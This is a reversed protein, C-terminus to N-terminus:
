LPLNLPIIADMNVSKNKAVSDEKQLILSFTNDEEENSTSGASQSSSLDNIQNVNDSAEECNEKDTVVDVDVAINVATQVSTQVIPDVAMKNDPGRNDGIDEQKNSDRNLQVLVDETSEQEEEKEAFAQTPVLSLMSSFALMIASVVVLGLFVFKKESAADIKM